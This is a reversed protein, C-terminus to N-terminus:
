NSLRDVILAVSAMATIVSFISNFGFFRSIKNGATQTIIITDNAQLIPIRAMEGKELHEKVNITLIPVRQSLRNGIVGSNNGDTAATAVVEGGRIIKVESLNAGERPGGAFSILSILDTHRPVVYQGPREIYGWVNIKMLVEGKDGLYYQSARNLASPTGENQGLVSGPLALLCVLFALHVVTRKTMITKSM